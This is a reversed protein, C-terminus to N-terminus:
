KKYAQWVRTIYRGLPTPAPTSPPYAGGPITLGLMWGNRGSMESARVPSPSSILPYISRYSEKDTMGCRMGAFSWSGTIVPVIPNLQHSYLYEGTLYVRQCQRDMAM